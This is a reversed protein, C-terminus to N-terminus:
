KQLVDGAVLILRVSGFRSTQDRKRVLAAAREATHTHTHPTRRSWAPWVHGGSGAVGGARSPPRMLTPSRARTLMIPLQHTFSLTGTLRGLAVDGVLGLRAAKCLLSINSLPPAVHVHFEM